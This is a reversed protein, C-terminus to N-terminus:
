MPIGARRQLARKPTSNSCINQDKPLRCPPIHLRIASRPPLVTEGVVRAVGLLIATIVGARAAKLTITMIVRWKPAHGPQELGDSGAGREQLVRPQQGDQGM